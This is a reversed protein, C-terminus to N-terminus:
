IPTGNSPTYPLLLVRLTTDNKLFPTLHFAAGFSRFGGHTKELRRIFHNNKGLEPAENEINRPEKRVVYRKSEHM